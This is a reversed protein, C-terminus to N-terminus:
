GAQMSIYTTIVWGVSSAVLLVAGGLFAVFLGWLSKKLDGLEGRLKEVDNVHISRESELVALRQVVGITPGLGLLNMIPKELGEFRGILESVTMSLKTVDQSLNGVTERVTECQESVLRMEAELGPYGDAM